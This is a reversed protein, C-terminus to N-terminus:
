LIDSEDQVSEWESILAVHKKLLAANQSSSGTESIAPTAASRLLPELTDNAAKIGKELSELREDLTMLSQDIITTTSADASDGSSQSKHRLEQIELIATIRIDRLYDHKSCDM